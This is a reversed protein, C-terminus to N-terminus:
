LSLRFRTWVKRGCCILLGVPLYSHSATCFIMHFWRSPDHWRPNNKLVKCPVWEAVPGFMYLSLEFLSVLSKVIYKTNVTVCCSLEIVDFLM